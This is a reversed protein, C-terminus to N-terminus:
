DESRCNSFLIYMLLHVYAYRSCLCSTYLCLEILLYVMFSVKVKSIFEEQQNNYGSQTKVASVRKFQFPKQVHYKICTEFGFFFDLESGKQCWVANYTQLCLSFYVNYHGFYSPLFWRQIIFVVLKASCM